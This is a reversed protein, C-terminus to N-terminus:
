YFSLEHAIFILKNDGDFCIIRNLLMNGALTDDFRVRFCSANPTNSVDGLTPTSEIADPNAKKLFAFVEDKKQGKAIHQDIYKSLESANGEVGFGAGIEKEGKCMACPVLAIVIASVVLIATIGIATYLLWKYKKM